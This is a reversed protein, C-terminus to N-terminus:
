VTSGMRAARVISTAIHTDPLLRQKGTQWPLSVTTRTSPQQGAM